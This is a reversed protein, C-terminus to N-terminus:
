SVFTAHPSSCFDFGVHCPSPIPRRRWACDMPLQQHRAGRCPDAGACRRRGRLRLRRGLDFAEFQHVLSLGGGGGTFLLFRAVCQTSGGLDIRHALGGPHLEGLGVERAVVVAVRNERRLLHQKAVVESLMATLTRATLPRRTDIWASPVSRWCFLIAAPVRLSASVSARLRRSSSPSGTSTGRGIIWSGGGGGGCRRRLRTAGAACGARGAASAGFALRNVSAPLCDM